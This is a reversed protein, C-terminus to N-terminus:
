RRRVDDNKPTLTSSGTTPRQVPSCSAARLTLQVPDTTEDADAREFRYIQSNMGALSHADIFGPAVTLGGADLIRDASRGALDGIAAIRGERVEVDARYGPKGMGDIVTGGRIIISEKM